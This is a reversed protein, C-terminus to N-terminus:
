YEEEPAQLTIEKDRTNILKEIIENDCFFTGYIKYDEIKGKIKVDLVDVIFYEKYCKHMTHAINRMFSLDRFLYKDEPYENSVGFLEEAKRENFKLLYVYAFDNGNVQLIKALPKRSKMNEEKIKYRKRLLIIYYKKFSTL